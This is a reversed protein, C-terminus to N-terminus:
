VHRGISNKTLKACREDNLMLHYLPVFVSQNACALLYFNGPLGSAEVSQIVSCVHERTTLVRHAGPSVLLGYCSLLTSSYRSIEKYPLVALNRVCDDYSGIVSDM